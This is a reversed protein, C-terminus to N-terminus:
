DRPRKFIKDFVINHWYEPSPLKKFKNRLENYTILIILCFYFFIVASEIYKIAVDTFFDRSALFGVVLLIVMFAVTYGAFEKVFKSLGKILGHVIIQTIGFLGFASLLFALATQQSVWFSAFFGFVVAFGVEKKTLLSLSNASPTIGFFNMQDLFRQFRKKFPKVKTRVNQWQNPLSIIRGESKLTLIEEKTCVDELWMPYSINMVESKLILMEEMTRRLEYKNGMQEFKHMAMALYLSRELHKFSRSRGIAFYTEALERDSSTVIRDLKFIGDIVM